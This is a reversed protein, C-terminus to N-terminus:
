PELPARSRCHRRRRTRLAIRHRLDAALSAVFGEDADSENGRLQHNFHLVALRIGLQPRLDALLRLMAVSDAGGSVAAGIREGPHFMGQETIARYIRRSLSPQALANRM